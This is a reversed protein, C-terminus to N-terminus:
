VRVELDTVFHDSQLVAVENNRELELHCFEM